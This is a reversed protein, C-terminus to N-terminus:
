KTRAMRRIKVLDIKVFEFMRNNIIYDLMDGYAIAIARDIDRKQVELSDIDRVLDILKMTDM